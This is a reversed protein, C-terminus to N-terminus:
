QGFFHLISQGVYLPSYGDGQLRYIVAGAAGLVVFFLMVLVTQRVLTRREKSLAKYSLYWQPKKM